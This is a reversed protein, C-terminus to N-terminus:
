KTDEPKALPMVGETRIERQQGPIDFILSAGDERVDLVVPAGMVMPLNIDGHGAPFGCLVPIDYEALYEALMAEVSGYELETGCDTFDGLIVGKCRSLIGNLRLFNFLRDINHMSEEVEEIFLIINKYATADAVSGVVPSLTCLNGGVLVGEAHGIRNQPHAPLEYRPVIGFLLDRMLTSTSDTGGKKLSSSMTGHISMIGACTEMEHLTTIDSYGVLWKPNTQLERINLKDALHLTGYGGRNCIIAKISTDELAWRLDSLREEVTGAYRGMYKKGVNPGVIPELGWSQLILITTDVNEPATAYAPSILAVKDGKQLYEPATCSLVAEDRFSGSVPRLASCSSLSAACSVALFFSLITGYRHKKKM